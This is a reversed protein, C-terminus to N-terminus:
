SRVALVAEVRALYNDVMWPWYEATTLFEELEEPPMVGLTDGSRTSILRDYLAHGRERGEECLYDSAALAALIGICEQDEAEARVLVEGVGIEGAREWAADAAQNQPEAQRAEIRAHQGAAYALFAEPPKSPRRDEPIAFWERLQRGVDEPMRNASLESAAASEQQAVPCRGGGPIGEEGDKGCPVANTIQSM